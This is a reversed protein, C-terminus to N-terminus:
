ANAKKEQRVMASLDGLLTEFALGERDVDPEDISRALAQSVKSVALASADALSFGNVLAGVLISGFIDGTGHLKRGIFDSQKLGEEDKDADYYHAGTQGEGDYGAGTLVLSTKKVQNCAHVFQQFLEDEVLGEQYPLGYILSAETQNPMILDAIDCLSRMKDAYAQDFGPYFAGDDAMVPDLYFKGGETLLDPLTELLFDIQQINGLYGVYVADFKLGYTQWNKVIKPMEQSLDLYTYNEFGPGTHTSLLATPLITGTLEMSSLIPLAVTTSCKGYCSIDHVILVKKM